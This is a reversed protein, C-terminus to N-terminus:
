GSWTPSTSRDLLTPTGVGANAILLDTPGLDSELSAIAALLDDREAV